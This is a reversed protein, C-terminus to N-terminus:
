VKAEHSNENAPKRRSKKGGISGAIRALPRNAYFGGTRSKKGGKHGMLRRQQTFFLNVEEQTAERGLKATLDRRIKELMTLKAKQWGEKTGPM